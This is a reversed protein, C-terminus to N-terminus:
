PGDEGERQRLPLTFTVVAGGGPRNELCIRGGHAAVIARCITLGLGVGGDGRVAGPGRYLKDFV